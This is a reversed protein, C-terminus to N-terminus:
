GCFFEYSGQATEGGVGGGAINAFTATGTGYGSEATVVPVTAGQAAYADGARWDTNDDVDVQAGNALPDATNADLTITITPDDVAHGQFGLAAGFDLCQIDAVAEWTTDGITVRATGAPLGGQGGASDPVTTESGDGAAPTDSSSGSTTTTSSPEASATSPAQNEVDATDDGGSCGGAILVVAALVVLTSGRAQM